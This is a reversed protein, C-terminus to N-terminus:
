GQITEIVGNNREITRLGLLGPLTSGSGECVPSEIRVLKASEQEGDGTSSATPPTKTRVAAPMNVSWNCSQSGQGVGHISLTRDLKVQTSQHGHRLGNQAVQGDWGFPEKVNEQVGYYGNPDEAKAVRGAGAVSYRINRYRYRKSM